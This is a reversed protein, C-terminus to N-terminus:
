LATRSKILQRAVQSSKWNRERGHDACWCRLCACACRLHLHVPALEVNLWRIIEAMFSSTTKDTLFIPVDKEVAIGFIEQDPMLNVASDDLCQIPYDDVPISAEKRDDSLKQLYTYEVYGVVQVRDSEFHEFFGTLQLAPRNIDPVNVEKGLLGIQPTLNKLNMKEAVKQLEVSGMISEKKM